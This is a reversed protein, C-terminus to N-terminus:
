VIELNSNLNNLIDRVKKFDNPHVKLQIGGFAYSAM